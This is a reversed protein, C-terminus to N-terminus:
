FFNGGASKAAMGLLHTDHPEASVGQGQGFVNGFGGFDGMLGHIPADGEKVIGPIIVPATRLLPHALGEFPDPFLNKQHGLTAGM